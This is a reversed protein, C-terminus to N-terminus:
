REALVSLQRHRVLLEYHGKLREALQEVVYVSRHQGGTCGIGITVYSRSEVQMQPLWRNMFSSIDNIMEQVAPQDALYDQIPKDMGNFPRLETDYYPNPLSRMDFLFDVNTPVGYKFGFSELIVLLGKREHKLWQQVTYRLQQANMKSTDICYALERLPSLWAREKQLSELLTMTQGSLPHSRRTESFRRILVAEDAELFLVEIDYGQERLYQIQEGAENIDIRSRIDVSIGLQTVESNDLHYQILGPLLKMPLNDVCYYGLDELLKLAVSKGSGSLGSILVIKM